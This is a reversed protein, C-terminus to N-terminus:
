KEGELAKLRAELKVIQDEIYDSTYESNNHNAVQKLTEIRERLAHKDRWALIKDRQQHKFCRSRTSCQFDDHYGSPPVLADLVKDLESDESQTTPGSQLADPAEVSGTAVMATFQANNRVTGLGCGEHPVCYCCRSKGGEVKVRADCASHTEDSM